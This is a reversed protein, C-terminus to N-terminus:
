RSGPRWPTRCSASATASCPCGAPSFFVEGTEVNWDWLGDNSGQVALVYREHSRRMEEGLLARERDVRSLYSLTWAIAAALLLGFSSSAALAAAERSLLGSSAARRAALAFLPPALLAGLILGRRLRALPNM